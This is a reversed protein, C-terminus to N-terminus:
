NGQEQSPHLLRCPFHLLKGLYPIGPLRMSATHERLLRCNDQQGFLEELRRYTARERSGLGSWTHRLRYICEVQLASVISM